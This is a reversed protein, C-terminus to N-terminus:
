NKEETKNNKTPTNESHNSEEGPSPSTQNRAATTTMTTTTAVNLFQPLREPSLDEAFRFPKDCNKCIRAQETNQTKCKSCMWPVWHYIDNKDKRPDRKKKNKDDGRGRRKQHHYGRRRHKQLQNPKLFYRPRYGNPGDHGHRGNKGNVHMQRKADPPKIQVDDLILEPEHKESPKENHTQNLKKGRRGNRRRNKKTKQKKRSTNTSEKEATEEAIPKEFEKQKQQGKRGNRRNKNRRNKRRRKNRTTNKGEDANTQEPESTNTEKAVPKLHEEAAQKRHKKGNGNGRKNRNRRSNTKSHTTQSSPPREHATTNKPEHVTTNKLERTESNEPKLKKTWAENTPTSHFLISQIKSNRYRIKVAHSVEKISSKNHKQISAKTLWEVYVFKHKAIIFTDPQYVMVMYNKNSFKQKFM